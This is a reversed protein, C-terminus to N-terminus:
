LAGTCCSEGTVSQVTRRPVLVRSVVRNDDAVADLPLQQQGVSRGQRGRVERGVKGGQRVDLAWILWSFQCDVHGRTSAVTRAADAGGSM